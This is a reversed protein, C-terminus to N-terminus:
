MIQARIHLDWLMKINNNGNNCVNTVMNKKVTEWCLYFLLCVCLMWICRQMKPIAVFINNAYFQIRKSSYKYAFVFSLSAFIYGLWDWHVYIIITKVFYYFLIWFQFHLFIFSIGVPSLTALMVSREVMTVKGCCVKM